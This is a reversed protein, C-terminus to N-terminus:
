FEDDDDADFPPEGDDEEADDLEKMLTAASVREMKAEYSKLLAECHTGLKAAREYLAMLEDLPVSAEDMRSVTEELQKYAQEYTLKSIECEECPTNFLSDELM